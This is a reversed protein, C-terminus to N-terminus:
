PRGHRGSHRAAMPGRGLLEGGCRAGPRGAFPNSAVARLVGKKYGQSETKARWAVSMTFRGSYGTLVGDLQTGNLWPGLEPCYRMTDRYQETFGLAIVHESIPADSTRAKAAQADAITKKNAKAGEGPPSRIRNGGQRM